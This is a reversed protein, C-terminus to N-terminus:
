WVYDPALDRKDHGALIHFVRIRKVSIPSLAALPIHKITKGQARAYSRLRDSPADAAVHVVIKELSYDIAAMLLVEPRDRAFRYDRDTWVDFLRGRPQTLMLGGYTARMIGPGVVQDAPDTAYFAMDSEQDHEGLWTMAFPYRRLEPDRDFIIVVSGAEGPVRGREEVYVRGEHLKTLTERIDIGDLLSTSFPEVRSREESLLSVAKRQLFSGYDEIVIDEPPYSCLGASDFAQLWDDPDTPAPRERLPLRRPQQKVRLFRRRFRIRRTGLDLKSGDIDVTPIEAQESQWPYTRAVDFVEWALNDDAVGRAAVVWEYLGGVLRGQVHAFRRSFDFFLRKQWISLREDTQARYSRSAIKWVAREISQRGPVSFGLDDPHPCLAWTYDVIRNRRQAAVGDKDGQIVRLGFRVVSTKTAVAGELDVEDPRAGSRGREWVAHALPADRLLGSLSRPTVHRLEVSARSSRSLPHAQPSALQSCVGDVHAAGICAVISRGGGESHLADLYYAMGAERQRDASSSTGTRRYHDRVLDFYREPGIRELAHPDPIPDRHRETYPLDPDICAVSRDRDLAWRLAEAMPDAPTVVWVLADEGPHESVIASVMPLRRVARLAVEKLTTPLEVAVTAPDIRDLMRRLHPTLEVCEHIVPVLHLDPRAGSEVWLSRNQRGATM